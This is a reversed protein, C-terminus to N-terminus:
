RAIARIFIASTCVTPRIVSSVVPSVSITVSACQLFERKTCVDLSCFHFLLCFSQLTDTWMLIVLFFSTSLSAARPHALVALSAREHSPSRAPLHFLSVKRFRVYPSRLLRWVGNVCVRSTRPTRM